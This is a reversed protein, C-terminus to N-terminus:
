ICEAVLVIVWLRQVLWPMSNSLCFGWVTAMEVSCCFDSFCGFIAVVELMVSSVFVKSM